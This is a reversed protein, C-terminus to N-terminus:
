HGCSCWSQHMLQLLTDMTFVKDLILDALKLRDLHEDRPTKDAFIIRNKEINRESAFKM